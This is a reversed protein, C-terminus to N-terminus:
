LFYFCPFVDVAVYIWFSTKVIDRFPADTPTIFPCTLLRTPPFFFVWFFWLYTRLVVFLRLLMLCLKQTKIAAGQSSINRTHKLMYLLLRHTEKHYYEM